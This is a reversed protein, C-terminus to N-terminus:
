NTIILIFSALALTGLRYDSVLQNGVLFQILFVGLMHLFATILFYINAVLIKSYWIKGLNVNLPYIAIYKLKKDERRHMMSPILALTAPMIMVYWWNYANVSFYSPMLVFAHLIAVIPAIILLKKLFSHEHKLNEAFIYNKMNTDERGMKLLM